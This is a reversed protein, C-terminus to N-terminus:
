EPRVKPDLLGYGIDVILNVVIIFVAVVVVVAQLVPTDGRNISDLILSGLGPVSFVKEIVFSGSLMLATLMGIIALVPMMANKLCYRMVLRGRPCGRATLARAYQSDLQALMSSRTHRAINATAGLGLALCPLIFGRVWPWIGASPPTYGAAPLLRLQVAFFLVLLLALWFGPMALLVSVIGTLARDIFSNRNLAAIVGTPVGLLIAIFIGGLALTLTIPLRHAIEASVELGTVYSRGLDGRLANGVWEFFLVPAPRDLGMEATLRAVAEPTAGDGLIAAPAQVPVFRFLIFAVLAVLIVVPLAAVTRAFTLKWM